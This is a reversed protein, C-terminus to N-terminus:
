ERDPFRVGPGEGSLQLASEPSPHTIISGGEEGPAHNKAEPSPRPAYASVKPDDQQVKVVIGLLLRM